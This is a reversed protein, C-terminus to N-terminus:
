RKGGKKHYDKYAVYGVVIAACASLVIPIGLPSQVFNMVTTGIDVSQMTPRVVPAATAATYLISQSPIGEPSVWIDAM